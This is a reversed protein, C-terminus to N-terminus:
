FTNQQQSSGEVSSLRASGSASSFGLDGTYAAGGVGVGVSSSLASASISADTASSSASLLGSGTGFELLVADGTVSVMSYGQNRSARGGSEQPVIRHMCLFNLNNKSTRM